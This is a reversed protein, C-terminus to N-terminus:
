LIGLHSRRFFRGMHPMLSIMVGHDGGLRVRCNDLRMEDRLHNVADNPRNESSTFVVSMANTSPMRSFAILADLSPSQLQSKIKQGTDTCCSDLGRLDTFTKLM